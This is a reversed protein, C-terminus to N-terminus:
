NSATGSPGAAQNTPLLPTESMDAKPEEFVLRLACPISQPKTVGAFMVLMRQVEHRAFGAPPVHLDLHVPLQTSDGNHKGTREVKRRVQRIQTALVSPDAGGEPTSISEVLRRLLNRIPPRDGSNIRKAVQQANLEVPITIDSLAQRVAGWKSQSQTGGPQAHILLQAWHAETDVHIISGTLSAVYLAAELSLGKFVQIQAGDKGSPLSQLLTYPDALAQRKFYEIFRDTANADAEPMHDAIFRRQSAEPLMWVVRQTEQKALKLFRYLGGGKPPKWGDTRRTLVERVHHGLPASVEGHDPVLHM